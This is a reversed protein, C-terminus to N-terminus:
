FGHSCLQPLQSSPGAQSVNDPQLQLQPAHKWSTFLGSFRPNDGLNTNKLLHAKIREVLEAITGKDVIQLARALGVLDEKLKYSNLPM